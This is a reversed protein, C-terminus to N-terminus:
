PKINGTNINKAKSSHAVHAVIICFCKRHLWVVMAWLGCKAARVGFGFGAQSAPSFKLVISRVLVVIHTRNRVLVM